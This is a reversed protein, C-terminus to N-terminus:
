SFFVQFSSHVLTEDLDLALCKKGKSKQVMEQMKGGRSVNRKNSNSLNAYSGSHATSVTQNIVAKSACCVFRSFFSRSISQNQTDDM